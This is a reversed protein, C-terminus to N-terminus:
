LMVSLYQLLSSVWISALTLVSTGQPCSKGYFCVHVRLDQTQKEAERGVRIGISVKRCGLGGGGM